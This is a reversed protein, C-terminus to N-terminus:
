RVECPDKEFGGIGGVPAVLGKSSIEDVPERGSLRGSPEPVCLSAETDETMLKALVRMSAEEERGGLPRVASRFCIRKSILDNGQALPVKRDVVDAPRQPFFPMFQTRSGYGHDEFLFAEGSQGPAAIVFPGGAYAGFNRGNRINALQVQSGPAKFGLEAAEKEKQRVETLDTEVLDKVLRSERAGLHDRGSMGDSRKKGKLEEAISAVAVHHALRQIFSQSEEGSQVAGGLSRKKGLVAAPDIRGAVWLEHTAPEIGHSLDAQLPSAGEVEVEMRDREMSLICKDLFVVDGLPASSLFAHESEEGLVRVAPNEAIGIRLEPFVLLGIRDEVKDCEPLLTGARKGLLEDEIGLEGGIGIQIQEVLHPDSENCEPAAGAFEKLIDLFLGHGGPPANLQFIDQSRIACRSNEVAVDGKGFVLASDALQRNGFQAM